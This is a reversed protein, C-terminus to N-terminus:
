FVIWKKEDIKLFIEKETSYDNNKTWVEWLENNVKISIQYHSGVYDIRQIMGKFATKEKSIEINEPRIGTKKQNKEDILYNIRGFLEAVYANIPKEYIEKPKAKQVIKGKELVIIEDALHLAEQPNHTVIILSTNIENKLLNITNQLKIKTPMDAQNFPEDLLLVDPENALAKAIATRQQQGGSIERPYRYLLDKLDLANALKELQEIQTSKIWNRIPYVINEWVKHNPLLKFDQPVCAIQKYERVLLTDPSPLLQQHLYINGTDSALKGALLQLLTTKGSGSEGAIVVCQAPLIDFSIPFLGTNEIYLKSINQISLM